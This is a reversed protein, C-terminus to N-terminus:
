FQLDAEFYKSKLRWKYEKNAADNALVNDETEGDFIASIISHPAESAVMQDADCFDLILITPLAQAGPKAQGDGPLMEDDEEGIQM